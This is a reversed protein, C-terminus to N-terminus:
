ARWALFQSPSPIAKVFKDAPPFPSPFGFSALHHNSGVSGMPEISSGAALLKDLGAHTFLHIFTRIVDSVGRNALFSPHNKDSRTTTINCLPQVRQHLLSVNSTLCAHRTM